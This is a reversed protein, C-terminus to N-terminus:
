RLHHSIKPKFHEPLGLDTVLTDAFEEPSNQPENMDWEFQDKIQINDIRLDLEITKLMENGRPYYPRFLQVQKKIQTHMEQEILSPLQNEEALMRAFLEPSM